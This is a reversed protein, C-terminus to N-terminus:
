VGPRPERSGLSAFTSWELFSVDADCRIASIQADSLDALFSSQDSPVWLSHFDLQLELRARTGSGDVGPKLYVSISSARPDRTNRIAAPDACAATRPSAVDGGCSMAACAMLCCLTIRIFNLL